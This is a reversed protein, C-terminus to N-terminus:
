WAAPRRGGRWVLLPEAGGQGKVGHWAPSLHEERGGKDRGWVEKDRSAGWWWGCEAERGTACHLRPFRAPPTGSHNGWHGPALIARKQFALGMEERLCYLRRGAGLDSANHNLWNLSSPPM